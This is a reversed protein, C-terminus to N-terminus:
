KKWEGDLCEVCYTEGDYTSTEEKSLKKECVCCTKKGFVREWGANFAANSPKSVLLDGTHDNCGVHKEM